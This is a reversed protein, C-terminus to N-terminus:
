NVKVVFMLTLGLIGMAVLFLIFVIRQKKEKEKKLRFEELFQQKEVQNIKGEKMPTKMDEYQRKQKGVLKRRRPEKFPLYPSLKSSM